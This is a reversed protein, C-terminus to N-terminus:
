PDYAIQLPVGAHSDGNLRSEPMLQCSMKLLIKPIKPKMLIVYFSLM